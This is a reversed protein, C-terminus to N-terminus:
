ASASQPAPAPQRTNFPEAASLRIQIYLAALLAPPAIMTGLRGVGLAIVPILFATTLAWKEWIRLVGWHRWIVLAFGLCAVTMDYVFVYPVVLFTATSLIFPDYKRHRVLLVLTAIATAAQMVAAFDGRGYATFASPMMRFYFLDGPDKLIGM